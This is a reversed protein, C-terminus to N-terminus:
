RRLESLAAVMRRLGERLQEEDGACTVRLHGPLGFLTGPMVQVLARRDLYTALDLDSGIEEGDPGRSGLLGDCNAFVYLGASPPRVAMGAVKSLETAALTALRQFERANEVISTRPGRLAALAAYQSLSAACSTTVYHIRSMARVLDADAAAYGVRLGTMSYAKSFGSILVSRARVEPSVAVISPAIVGDFTLLEYIQDALVGVRPATALVRALARYEDRTYTRGSPNNPSNLVIWRTRETIAAAIGDVPLAYDAGPDSRVVVPVAGTFSIMPVYVPYHPAVLIVEDGPEVTALLASSLMQKSGAGVVIEEPRYTVGHDRRLTAAIETRLELVGAVPTYRTHGHALAERVGDAVFEPMPFQPDGPGLNISGPPADFLNPYRDVTTRLGSVRSSLRM